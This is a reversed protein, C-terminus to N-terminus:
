WSHHSYRCGQGRGNFIASGYADPTPPMNGGQDEIVIPAGLGVSGLTALQQAKDKADAMAAARAQKMLASPDSFGFSVGYVSNAGSAVLSDILKGAKTLDRVNVSVINTVQYGTVTPAGNQPYNMMPSVAYQSTTIDKDAIGADKLQKMVADMKTAAEAQAADLSTNQVQVGVQITAMDPKASISGTGNVSIRPQVAPSSAAQQDPAM